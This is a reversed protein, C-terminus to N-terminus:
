KSSLVYYQWPELGLATDKKWNVEQGTMADKKKVDVPLTISQREKSLNFIGIVSDGDKERKFMYVDPHDLIKELQGGHKGNWLAKNDHKLALLRTYFNAYAYQTFGIDDKEFFKLRKKMPEEQGGYLLPMGDFTFALAALTQHAEGMREFVTGNWSNEDHNSTFHMSFGKNFKKDEEFWADIDKVSKEGKAIQNLLHHGGWAYSMHFVGSNRHPPHEAEALMFLAKGTARLAKGVEEWFADPVEKAVDDRFGDINHENVWFLKDAIMAQWLDKQDYNLDAVDTWGWSDGTEPNSPDIIEGKDNKTYWEPHETIWAHDWGTHNPVWDLIIHMGAAHIATVMADFDAMTGFEPNVNKYDSIAYYSGLTGKRKTESIPYIPMLWLIDVGMKKLRPLHKTFANFTGEPTFQRINVEYINANIAWSPLEGPAQQEKVVADSKTSTSSNQQQCAMLFLFGILFFYKYNNCNM